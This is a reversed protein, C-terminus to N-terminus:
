NNHVTLRQQFERAGPFNPMRELLLNITELAKDPNNTLLYAGSLNYHAQGDSPNLRVAEELYPLGQRTKQQNMLISGLWKNSFADNILFVSRHLYPIAEQFERINVLLKGLIQYPSENFPFTAALAQYEEIALDTRGIEIYHHALEVHAKEYNSNRLIVKKALRDMITTQPIDATNFKRNGESFPWGSTLMKIRYDAIRLDLETVAIRQRFYDDNPINAPDIVPEPLLELDIITEALIQGMRFYGELNPHLHELMLEKGILGHSTYQRLKSELECLYVGPQNAISRIIENFEDSARFRLGDLNRARHYYRAAIEYKNLLEACRGAYFHLLAYEPDATILQELRTLASAYKEELMAQKVQTLNVSFLTTDIGSTHISVFPKQDRINSALTALLLPVAQQRTWTAIDQLNDQFVTKTNHYIPDSVPIAKERAMRAMLIGQSATNKSNLGSKLKGTLHQIAQYIKLRKLKLYALTLTRNTGFVSAQASASGLAGYFENHGAYIIILDPDYDLCEHAFDRVTYSNIATMGLNIVEIENELSLKQLRQELLAAFTGSYLYPYGATTSGGLTFIRITNDPKPTLFVEQTGLSGYGSGTFYFKGIEGNVIFCDQRYEYPIFLRGYNQNFDALRLITELGILIFIPLLIILFLFIIKITKITPKSTKYM